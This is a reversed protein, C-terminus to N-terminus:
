CLAFIWVTIWFFNEAFGVNYRRVKPVFIVNSTQWGAYVQSLKRAQCTLVLRLDWQWHTPGLFNVEQRDLLKWLTGAPVVTM